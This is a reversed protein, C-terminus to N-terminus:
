LKAMLHVADQVQKYDVDPYQQKLQKTIAREKLQELDKSMGVQSKERKIQESVLTDAQLEIFNSQRIQEKILVIAEERSIPRRSGFLSNLLNKQVYYDDLVKLVEQRIILRLEQYSIESEM